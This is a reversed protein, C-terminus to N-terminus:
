YKQGQFIFLMLIRLPKYKKILRRIDKKNKISYGVKNRVTNLTIIGNKLLKELHYSLTSAAINFEKLIENHKSCNNILLFNVIKLPTEQRLVALKERDKSGLDDKLYVRTYGKLKKISVFDHKQLYRIHYIILPISMKLLKSIKSINVGPNELIFNYIERRKDFDLIKKTKRRNLCGM